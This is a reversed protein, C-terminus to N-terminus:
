WTEGLIGVVCLLVVALVSNLLLKLMVQAPSIALRAILFIVAIAFCVFLVTEMQIQPM